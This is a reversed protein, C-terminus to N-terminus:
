APWSFLLPCAENSFGMYSVFKFGVSALATLNSVVRFVTHVTTYGETGGLVSEYGYRQHVLLLIRQHWIGGERRSKGQQLLRPWWRSAYCLPFREETMVSDESALSAFVDDDPFRIILVKSCGGSILVGVGALAFFVASDYLCTTRWAESKQTETHGPHRQISDELCVSVDKLHPSLITAVWYTNQTKRKKKDRRVPCSNEVFSVGEQLFHRRPLAGACAQKGRGQRLCSLSPPDEPKGPCGDIVLSTQLDWSDLREMGSNKFRLM